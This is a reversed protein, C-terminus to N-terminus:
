KASSSASQGPPAAGFAKAVEERTTWYGAKAPISDPTSYQGPSAEERHLRPVKDAEIVVSYPGYNAGKFGEVLAVKDKYFPNTQAQPTIAKNQVVDRDFTRFTMVRVGSERMARIKDATLFPRETKLPPAPAKVQPPVTERLTRAKPPVSFRQLAATAVTFVVGAAGQWVISTKLAALDTEVQAIKKEIAGRVLELV